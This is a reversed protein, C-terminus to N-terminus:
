PAAPAGKTALPAQSEGAEARAPELAPIAARTTYRPDDSVVQMGRRTVVNILLPAALNLYINKGALTVICVLEVDERREIGLAALHERGVPPDYNPFFDWPTAVVFALDPDELSALWAMDSGEAHEMVVYRTKNPFGPLPDFRVVDAEPVEIPGVRRSEFRVSEGM